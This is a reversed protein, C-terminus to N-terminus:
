QEGMYYSCENDWSGVLLTSQMTVFLLDSWYDEEKKVLGLSLNSFFKDVKNYRDSAVLIQGHSAIRSANDKVSEFDIKQEKETKQM